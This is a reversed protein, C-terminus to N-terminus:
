NTLPTNELEEPTEFVKGNLVLLDERFQDMKKDFSKYYKKMLKEKVIQRGTDQNYVDDGHVKAVARFNDPMMYKLDYACFTTDGTIKAIKNLADMSTNSLVGVTMGRDPIDYFKIAM